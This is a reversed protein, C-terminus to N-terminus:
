PGLFRLSSPVIEGDNLNTTSFYVMFEGLYKDEPIKVFLPLRRDELSELTVRDIPIVAEAAAPLAASLTFTAKRNTKNFIHVLYQNRIEGREVQYPLGQQRQIVAEFPRRQVVFVTGVTFFVGLFMVYLAIRPRLFRREKGELGALSDYRVLGPEQGIKGMIEDCADVCNACGICELQLGERIDIGTPCVDVCRFCNICAGRGPDAKKGRPEGRQQDYGIIYTQEDTLASQLRGYPCVVLCTQERFWAFNFYLGATIAAMWSFAELHNRPDDLVWYKLHDFSVFYSIFINSVLIASLLYFFHKFALIRIKRFNWPGKELQIQERKPGEFFREIPRFIAELFVTKPCAWGCWVRGVMATVVLLSLVAGVVFFFGLYVDQANFTGGFLFFRRYAIDILILPRGDVKILPAVAYIAILVWFVRVRWRTFLGRVDGIRVKTRSGDSALSSRRQHHTGAGSDM